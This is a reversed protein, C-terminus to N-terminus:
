RCSSGPSRRSKHVSPSVSITASWSMAFTSSCFEAIQADTGPEQWLFQNCPFGLVVLGQDKYTQWLEELGKYQPTFGCKSATNVVLVAKGAFDALTKQEGKITTCPISLLNDSM